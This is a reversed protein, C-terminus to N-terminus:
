KCFLLEIHLNGRDIQLGVREIQLDVGDIQLIGGPWCDEWFSFGAGGLFGPKGMRNSIKSEM